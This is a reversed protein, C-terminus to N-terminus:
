SSGRAARRERELRRATGLTREVRADLELIEARPALGVRASLRRRRRARAARLGHAARLFRAPAPPIASDAMDAMEAGPRLAASVTCVCLHIASQAHHAGHAADLVRPVGPLALV